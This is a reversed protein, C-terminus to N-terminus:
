DGVRILLADIDAGRLQRRMRNLKDLDSVPGIRVRHWVDQDVAVRQVQADIGLRSLKSRVREADELGRYSGAQLVYVGPRDVTATTVDGERKVDREKEPVVVEFKPLMEYFSYQNMAAPPDQADAASSPSSSAPQAARRPEPKPAAPAPQTQQSHRVYLFVLTAVVAGALLGAGFQKLKGVDPGRRQTRKYDVTTLKRSM